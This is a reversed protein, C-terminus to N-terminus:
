RHQVSSRGRRPAVCTAAPGPGNDVCGRGTAVLTANQTVVFLLDKTGSATQVNSLYVPTTDTALATSSDAAHIAASWQPANVATVPYGKEDPNAGSHAQDFGFQTWDTATASAAFGCAALAAVLSLPLRPHRM